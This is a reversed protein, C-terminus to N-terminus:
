PASWLVKGDKGSLVLSAASTTSRKGTKTTVLENSGIEASFGNADSVEVAGSKADLLINGAISEGDHGFLWLSERGLEGDLRATVGDSSTFQLQGDLLVARTGKDGSINLVGAGITTREKGNEDLLRIVPYGNPGTDYSMAIDARVKGRSDRLVFKQTDM